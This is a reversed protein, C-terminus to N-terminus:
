PTKQFHQYDKMSNWNGGWTFGRETFLKYCLDNGDIKYPFDKSRDTYQESGEPSIYTSGDSRYVVYPNYFPNIDIAMGYAHKSLNASGDVVRYNFCSTNNDLMSATDDGNYEEILKIKEIQYENRYLEFFIELLDNAIKKNCILEGIQVEGNFDYHLIHLYSLDTYDIKREEYDGIINIAEIGSNGAETEKLPYSIGGIKQMLQSSLPEAYFDTEYIIREESIESGQSTVEPTSTPTIEPSPVPTPKLAPIESPVPTPEPASTESSAPIGSPSSSAYAIEPNNDAYERLTESGAIFRIFISWASIILILLLATGVMKKM